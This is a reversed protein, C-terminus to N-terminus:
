FLFLKRSPFSTFEQSFVLPLSTTLDQPEGQSPPEIWSMKTPGLFLFSTEQMQCLGLFIVLGWLLFPHTTPWWQPPRLLGAFSERGWHSVSAQRRTGLLISSFHLTSWKISDPLCPSPRTLLYWQPLTDKLVWEESGERGEEQQMDQCRMLGEWFSSMIKPFPFASILNM